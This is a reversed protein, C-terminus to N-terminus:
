KFSNYVRRVIDSICFDIQSDMIGMWMVRAGERMVEAWGAACTGGDGLGIGGEMLLNEGLGEDLDGEFGKLGAGGTFSGIDAGSAGSGYIILM